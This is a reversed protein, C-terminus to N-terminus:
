ESVGHTARGGGQRVQLAVLLQQQLLVEV